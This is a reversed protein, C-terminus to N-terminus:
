RTAPLVVFVMLPLRIYIFIEALVLFSTGGGRRRRLSHEYYVLLCRDGFVWISSVGCGWFM